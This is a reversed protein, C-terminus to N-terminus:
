PGLSAFPNKGETVDAGQGVGDQQGRSLGTQGRAQCPEGQVELPWLWGRGRRPAPRSAASDWQGAELRTAPGAPLTRRRVRLL